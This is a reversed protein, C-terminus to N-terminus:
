FNFLAQLQPRGEQWGLSLGFRQQFKQLFQDQQSRNFKHANNMANYINGGYWGIEFLSLIGAVAYNENDFAEIAGYIFATNLAFAVGAQRPRETYLQGAGPLIAALAGALQPSKEPLRQYDDLASTLQQKLPPPLRSFSAGAEAPKNQQLQSLGIKYEAMENRQSTGDSKLKTYRSQAAAYDGRDYAADAFLQVAMEAEPSDPYTEWVKELALDAQQWRQGALLCKAVALQAYAAHPDNPSYHLFRKYETIARYYDEEAVLSDAFSLQDSEADAAPVLVLLLFFLLTPM